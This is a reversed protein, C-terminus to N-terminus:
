FEPTDRVEDIEAKLIRTLERGIKSPDDVDVTSGDIGCIQKLERLNTPVNEKKCKHYLKKIEKEICASEFLEPHKTSIAVIAEAEYVMKSYKITEYQSVDKSTCGHELAPKINMMYLMDIFLIPQVYIDKLSYKPTIEVMDQMFQAVGGQKFVDLYEAYVREGPLFALKIANRKISNMTIFDIKFGLRAAFKFARLIRLPDDAFTEANTATIVRRQLDGLGNHPDIVTGDWVNMAISNITFDRRGLDQEITLNENSIVEVDTHKSGTQRDVRALAIDYKHTKFIAFAKGVVKVDDFHKEVISELVPVTVGTVCLDIDNCAIGLAHDRVCGGVFYVSAGADWLEKVFPEDYVESRNM